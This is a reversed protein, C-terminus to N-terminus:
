FKKTIKEVQKQKYSIGRSKIKSNVIDFKVFAIFLKYM